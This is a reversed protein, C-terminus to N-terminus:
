KAEGIVFVSIEVIESRHGADGRPGAVWSVKLAVAKGNEMVFEDNINFSLHKAPDLVKSLLGANPAESFVIHRLSIQQCPEGVYDGSGVIRADTFRAEGSGLLSGDRLSITASGISRDGATPLLLGSIIKLAM